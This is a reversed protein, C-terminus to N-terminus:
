QIGILKLQDNQVWIHKKKVSFKWLVVSSKMLKNLYVLNMLKTQFVLQDSPFIKLFLFGLWSMTRASTSKLYNILLRMLAAAPYFLKERHIIVPGLMYQLCCKLGYFTRGNRAFESFDQLNFHQARVQIIRIRLFIVGVEQAGTKYFLGCPRGKAGLRTWPKEFKVSEAEEQLKLAPVEIQKKFLRSPWLFLVVFLSTFFELHLILPATQRQVGPTNKHVLAQPSLSEKM